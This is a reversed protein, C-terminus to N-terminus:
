EKNNFKLFKIISFSKLQVTFRYHKKLMIKTQDQKTIFVPPQHLLSWLSYFFKNWERLNQHSEEFLMHIDFGESFIDYFLNTIFIFGAWTILHSTNSGTQAACCLKTEWSCPGTLFAGEVTVSAHELSWTVPWSLWVWCHSNHWLGVEVWFRLQHSWMISHFGGGWWWV